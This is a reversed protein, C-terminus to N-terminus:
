QTELAKQLESVRRIWPKFRTLEGPLEALAARASSRSKYLGVSLAFVREDNENIRHFYVMVPTDGPLAQAFDALKSRSTSTGVQLTFFEGSIKKIWNEDLLELSGDPEENVQMPELTAAENSAPEGSLASESQLSEVHEVPTSPIPTEVATQSGQTVSAAFSPKVSSLSSVPLEAAQLSAVRNGSFPGIPLWGLLPELVDAVRRSHQTDISVSATMGARLVPKNDGPEIALNVPIRQVVKVWNGTANQPPLLAFEAGTTPAITAVEAQWEVQPYADVTVTARQGEKVHTLQTEKLNAEVWVKGHEVLSFVPTGAEIFEGAQLSVNSVVGAVPARVETKAKEALAERYQLSAQVFAPHEEVPLAPDGKFGTLMRTSQETLVKVRQQASRLNFLADEAAQASGIGEKNLSQHRQFQRRFYLIRDQAENISVQVENHEARLTEVENRALEMAAEAKAVRLDFDDSDISFLLDNQNVTQNNQVIGSLTRGSVDASVAIINSKVYANDSSVFRGGQLYLYGAIVIALVPFVVMLFFRKLVRGAGKTHATPVEAIDSDVAM